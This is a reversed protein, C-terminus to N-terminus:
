VKIDPLPPTPTFTSIALAILSITMIIMVVVSGIRILKIQLDSLEPIEKYRWRDLFFISEEPEYLSWICYGYVPILLVIIIFFLGEM